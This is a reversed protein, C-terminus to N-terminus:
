CVDFPGCRIEDLYKFYMLDHTCKGGSSFYTLYERVCFCFYSKFSLLNTFDWAFVAVSAVYALDASSNIYSVYFM